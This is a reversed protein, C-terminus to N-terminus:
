VYAAPEAATSGLVQEHAPVFDWGPLGLDTGELGSM